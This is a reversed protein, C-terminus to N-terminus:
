IAEIEYGSGADPNLENLTLFPYKQKFADIVEGYRCWDHPVAIITLEGEQKAGAVLEASPEALAASWSFVSVALAASGLLVNRYMAGEAREM